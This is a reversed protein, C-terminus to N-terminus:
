MKGLLLSYLQVYIPENSLCVPCAISDQTSYPITVNRYLEDSRCSRASKLLISSNFLTTFGRQVITYQTPIPSSGDMGHVDVVISRENYRGDEDVSGRCDYVGSDGDPSVNSIVLGENTM